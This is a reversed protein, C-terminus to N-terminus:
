CHLVRVRASHLHCHHANLCQHHPRHNFDLIIFFHGTGINFFTKDINLHTNIIIKIGELYMIDGTIYHVNNIYSKRM